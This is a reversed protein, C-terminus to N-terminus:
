GQGCRPADPHRRCFRRRARWVLYTCHHKILVFASRCFQENSDRWSQRWEWQSIDGFPERRWRSSAIAIPQLIILVCACFLLREFMDSKSHGRLGRHQRDTEVKEGGSISCLRRYSQYYQTLCAFGQSNQQLLSLKDGWRDLRSTSNQHLRHSGTEKSIAVGYVVVYNQSTPTVVIYSFFSRWFEHLWSM